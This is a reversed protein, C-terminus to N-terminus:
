ASACRSRPIGLAHPEDKAAIRARIQDANGVRHRRARPGQQLPGVSSTWASDRWRGAFTLSAMMTARANLFRCRSVSPTASNAYWGTAHACGYRHPGVSSYRPRGPRGAASRHSENSRKDSSHGRCGAVSTTKGALSRAVQLVQDILQLLRGRSASAWPCAGGCSRDRAASATCCYVRLASPENRRTGAALSRGLLM